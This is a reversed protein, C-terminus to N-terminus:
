ATLVRRGTEIRRRAARLRSDSVEGLQFTDELAIGIGTDIVQFVYGSEIRCWGKLTVTGGSKTVKIANSV